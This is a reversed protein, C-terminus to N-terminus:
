AYGIYTGKCWFSSIFPMGAGVLYYGYVWESNEDDVSKGRFKIERM